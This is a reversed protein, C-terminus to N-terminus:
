VHDEEAARSDVAGSRDRLKASPRGTVGGGGAVLDRKTGGHRRSLARADALDGATTRDYGLVGAEEAERKQARVVGRISKVLMSASGKLQLRSLLSAQSPEMGEATGDEQRAVSAFYRADVIKKGIRVRLLGWALLGVLVLVPAILSRVAWLEVHRIAFALARMDAGTADHAMPEAYREDILEPQEPDTRSGPNLHFIAVTGVVYVAPFIWRALKDIVQAVRQWKIQARKKQVEQAAGFTEAAVSLEELSKSLLNEVCLKVFALRTVVILEARQRTGEAGREAIDLADTIRQLRERPLLTYDAFSLFRNVESVQVTGNGDSDLLFYLREFFLLKRNLEDVDELAESAEETPVAEGAAADAEESMGEAEEMQEEEEEEEEEEKAREDGGEAESTPAPAGAPAGGATTRRLSGGVSSSSHKLAHHFGHLNSSAGAFNFSRALQAIASEKESDTASEAEMAKQLGGPGTLAISLWLPLFHERTCYYFYVSTCSTMLISFYFIEHFFIYIDIWVVEKCIPMLLQQIGKAFQSALYVTVGYGLREGAAPSIFLTSFALIALFVPPLWLTLMYYVDADRRVFFVFEVIPYSQTSYPYSKYSLQATAGRFEWQSYTSARSRELGDFEWGADLLAIPQVDEGFQWGGVDTPCKLEDNPFNNLGSFGCLLSVSGQRSWFVTGDSSVLAVAPELTSAAEGNQNYLTVDPTWVETLEKELHRVHLAISDVGGFLAPDWALRDDRWQLRFWVKMDMTGEAPTVKELKFVRIGVKVTTNTPPIFKLLNSDGNYEPFAGSAGLNGGFLWRRVAVQNAQQARQLGISPQVVPLVFLLLLSSQAVM